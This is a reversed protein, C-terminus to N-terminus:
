GSRKIRAPKGTTKALRKIDRSRKQPLPKGHGNSDPKERHRKPVRVILDSLECGLAECIRDLMPLKPDHVGTWIKWIITPACKMIDALQKPNAVDRALAAEKVTVKIM